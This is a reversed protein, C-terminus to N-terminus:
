ETLKLIVKLREMESASFQSEDTVWQLQVQNSGIHLIKFGKIVDGSRCITDDIMCRADNGEKLISLLELEKARSRVQQELLVIPEIEQFGDNDDDLKLTQGYVEISFPNKSLEGVGVQQINEFEHFKAVIEDMHTMMETSVGTLRTIAAEIQVEETNTESAIAAMPKSKKVMFFLAGIGVVFMAAFVITSQRVRDEHGSVTLLEQPEEIADIGSSIDVSNTSEQKENERMFSLM